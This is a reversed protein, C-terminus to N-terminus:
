YVKVQRVGNIQLIILEVERPNVKKGATNILESARGTLVVEGEDRVEVLDDTVFRGRELANFTHEDVLYGLAVSDSKVSLRAGDLDLEVGTMSGGVTGRE